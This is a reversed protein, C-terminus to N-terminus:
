VGAESVQQFPLHSAGDPGTMVPESTSRQSRQTGGGPLPNMGLSTLRVDGLVAAPGERLHQDHM